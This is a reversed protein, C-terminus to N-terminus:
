EVRELQIEERVTRTETNNKRLLEGALMLYAQAGASKRDYVLAPQGFSPAEALRVNRPIVTSYLKDGFYQHLQDSVDSSLRNRSDYMTRLVGEISLSPNVSQRLQDITNLLDSLGELAYYECQMPVIVGKAAVLGNITLMNLAPPCDIFIFDFQSAVKALANKLRFERETLKVLNIEATTLMNNAPLLRYGTHEPKIIAKNIDANDLLVETVSTEIDQKNCGSGMTANGQPDLDVLLVQKKAAAVSAALNVCSTTKGVGGKQNALAIIKGVTIGRTNHACLSLM